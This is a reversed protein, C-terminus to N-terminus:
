SQEKKPTPWLVVDLGAHDSGVDVTAAVSPIWWPVAVHVVGASHVRRGLLRLAVRHGINLDGIVIAGGLVAVLRRLYQARTRRARGPPAHPVLIVPAWARPTKADIGLRARLIPRRRIGGGESTAATGDLLRAALVTGRDRRVAVGLASEPSGIEGQQVVDWAEGAVVAADVDALECAGIVHPRGFRGQEEFARELVRTSRAASFSVSAANVARLRLPAPQLRGNRRRRALWRARQLVPRM